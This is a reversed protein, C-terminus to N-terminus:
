PLKHLYKYGYDELYRYMNNRLSRNTREAFRATTESLTSYIEIGETACFKKFDSAFETAQDVWNKPRNRSAIMNSFTKRTERSDKM